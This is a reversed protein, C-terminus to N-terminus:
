ARNRHKPRANNLAQHCDALVEEWTYRKRDRKSEELREDLFAALEPTMEPLEDWAEDPLQHQLAEILELQDDLPAKAVKRVDVGAIVHRKAAPRTKPKAKPKAKAKAKMCHVIGRRGRASCGREHLAAVIVAFRM